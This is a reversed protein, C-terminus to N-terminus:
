RQPPAGCGAIGLWGYMALPKIHRLVLSCLNCLCLVLYVGCGCLHVCTGKCHHRGLEIKKIYVSLEPFPKNYSPMKGIKYLQPLQLAKAYSCSLRLLFTKMGVTSMESQRIVLFLLRSSMTVAMLIFKESGSRACKHHCVEM